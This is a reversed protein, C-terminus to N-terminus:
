REHSEEKPRPGAPPAKAKPKLTLYAAQTKEAVFRAQFAEPEIVVPFSFWGHTRYFACAAELLGRALDTPSTRHKQQIANLEEAIHSLGRVFLVDEIPKKKPVFRASLSFLAM